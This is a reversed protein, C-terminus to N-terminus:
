FEGVDHCVEKIKFKNERTLFGYDMNKMLTQTEVGVGGEGRCYNVIYTHM